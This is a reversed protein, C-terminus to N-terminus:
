HFLHELNDKRINANWKCKSKAIANRVHLRFIDMEFVQHRGRSLNKHNEGILGPLKGSPSVSNVVTIEKRM